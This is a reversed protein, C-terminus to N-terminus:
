RGEPKVRCNLRTAEGLQILEAEAQMWGESDHGPDRGQNLYLEYARLEITKPDPKGASLTAAEHITKRHKM